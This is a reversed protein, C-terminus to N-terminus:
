KQIHSRRNLQWQHSFWGWPEKVTVTEYDYYKWWCGSYKDGYKFYGIKCFDILAITAMISIFFSIFYIAAGASPSLGWNAFVHYVGSETFDALRLGSVQYQCGTLAIIFHVYIYYGFLTTYSACTGKWGFKPTNLIIALAMFLNMAHCFFYLDTTAPRGIFIYRLTFITDSNTPIDLCIVMLSAIIAMPSLTRAAKRTPDGILSLPLAFNMFTCVNLLLAKSVVTSEYVTLLRDPLRIHAFLNWDAWWSIVIEYILYFLAWGLWFWYMNTVKKIWKNAAIEVGCIGLCLFLLGIGAPNFTLVANM